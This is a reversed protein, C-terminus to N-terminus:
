RDELLNRNTYTAREFERVNMSIIPVEAFMAKLETVIRKSLDAKQEVTRGELINAFVHLFAPNNEGNYFYEFPRIRVKIDNKRFLGTAEATDHVARLITAPPQVKLINESCDIIFHPM